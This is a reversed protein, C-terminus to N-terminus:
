SVFDSVDEAKNERFSMKKDLIEIFINTESKNFYKDLITNYDSYEYKCYLINICERMYYRPKDLITALFINDFYRITTAKPHLKNLHNRQRDASLTWSPRLKNTFRRFNRSPSFRNRTLTLILPKKSSTPLKSRKKVSHLEVRNFM